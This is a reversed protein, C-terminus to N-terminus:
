QTVRVTTTATARGSPLAMELVPIETREQYYLSEWGTTLVLDRSPLQAEVTLEVRPSRCCRGEVSWEWAPTLRWRLVASKFPGWIDDTIQWTDTSRDVSVRRRHCCGRHDEYWGSWAARDGTADLAGDQVGLWAGYLFRGLRPMQDRGDFEVTNHAATSRFYTQWPPDCNYSFSGADRLVNEEGVWLDLHLQDAHSPRHRYHPTCRIIGRTTKGRLVVVGGDGYVEDRSPPAETEDKGGDAATELGLWGALDDWPGAPLVPRGTCLLALAQVTPRMDRYDCDTLPLILAGDNAGTNPALGTRSDTVDRLFEGARGVRKLLERSLTKGKAKGLVIAWLYDHLMLRHYNISHQAFTGDAYILERAQEELHKRGLAEWRGASPHDPLVLAATWLGLSESIGHNNEQSLAYAINAEIRAASVAVMEALRALREPTTEVSEAFAGTGFCWAMMRFATEQGCRWQAGTNPPNHERWDLVLQWFAAAFTDDHSHRWARALLYVFGFRSLEWQGKIDGGASDSVQSWHIDSSRSPGSVFPTASWDPPFGVARVHRAFFRFRGGLLAQSQAVAAASGPGGFQPVDLRHSIGEESWSACPARRRLLGTRQRITYLLRFLVWRWGLCRAIAWYRKM